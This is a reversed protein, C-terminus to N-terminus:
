TENSGHRHSGDHEETERRETRVGEGCLHQLTINRAIRFDLQQLLGFGASVLSIPDLDAGALAPRDQRDVLVADLGLEAYGRIVTQGEPALDQLIVELRQHVRRRLISRRVLRLECDLVPHPM